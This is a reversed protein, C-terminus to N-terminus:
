LKFSNPQWFAYVLLVDHSPAMPSGIFPALAHADCLFLLLFFM